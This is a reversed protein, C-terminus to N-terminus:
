YENVMDHEVKREELPTSSAMNLDASLTTVHLLFIYLSILYTPHRVDEHSPHSPGTLQKAPPVSLYPPAFRLGTRFTKLLRALASKPSRQLCGFPTHKTQTKDKVGESSLNSNCSQVGSESTSVLQLLTLITSQKVRRMRKRVLFLLVDNFAILRIDLRLADKAPRFGKYGWSSVEVFNFSKVCHRLANLKTTHNRPMPNALHHENGQPTQYHISTLMIGGPNSPTVVNM